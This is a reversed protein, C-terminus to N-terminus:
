VSILTLDETSFFLFKWWFIQQIRIDGVIYHDDVVIVFLVSFVVLFFASVVSNLIDELESEEPNKASKKLLSDCYRALLEPSKSSNQAQKTVANM